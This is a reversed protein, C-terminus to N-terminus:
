KLEQDLCSFSIKKGITCVYVLIANALPSVQVSSLLAYGLNM